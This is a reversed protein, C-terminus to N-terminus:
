GQPPTPDTHASDRIRRDEEILAHAEPKLFAPNVVDGIAARNKSDLLGNTLATTQAAVADVKADTGAQRIFLALIGLVNALAGLLITILSGTNAGEPAAWFVAVCAAITFCFVVVMGVVIPTLANVTKIPVNTTM